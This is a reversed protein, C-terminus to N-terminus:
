GESDREGGNPAEPVSVKLRQAILALLVSTKEDRKQRATRGTKADARLEDVDRRLGEVDHRLGEVEARLRDVEARLRDAETDRAPLAPASPLQTERPAQTQVVVPAPAPAPPAPAPAPSAPTVARWITISTAVAGLVTAVIALPDAM